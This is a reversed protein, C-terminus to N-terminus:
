GGSAMDALDALDDEDFEPIVGEKISNRAGSTDFARWMISGPNASHGQSEPDEHNRSSQYLLNILGLAHGLEHLLTVRELLERQGTLTAQEGPSPTHDAPAQFSNRIRDPFISLATASLTDGLANPHDNSFGNLYVVYLSIKSGGSHTQRRGAYEQADQLTYSPAAVELETGGGFVVQKGTIKRLNAALASRASESPSRGKMYDIEILISTYRGKRLMALAAAGVQDTDAFATEDIVVETPGARPATDDADSLSDPQPSGYNHVVPSPLAQPRRSAPDCAPLLMCLFVIHITAKM